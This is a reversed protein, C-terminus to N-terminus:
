RLKNIRQPRQRNADQRQRRIDIFREGMGNLFRKLDSLRDRNEGERQLTPIRDIRKMKKEKKSLM